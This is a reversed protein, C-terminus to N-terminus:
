IVVKGKIFSQFLGDVDVGTHRFSSILDEVGVIKGVNATYYEHLGSVFRKDGIASRLGDFLVIGQNYVLNAYEYESMFTSLDRDMATNTEGFLQSYISIYSRIAKKATTLVGERTFGYDNNEFFLVCSYEALGEDVWAHNRQDSGVGEYWWEHATEHVIAYNMTEESLLNSVMMLGAYEMGAYPFDTQVLSLSDYMCEGFTDTFYSFCKSFLDFHERAKEDNTYYYSLTKGKVEASLVSLKEGLVFAFDRVYGEYRCTKKQGANKESLLTGSSAVTYSSPLTISVDYSACESYFPDGVNHYVCEQWGNDYVCLIPYFNALNVCNQGVGLRHNVKALRTTFSISVSTEKGNELEPISVVLLNEDTGGVTYEASVSTIETYGYDLKDYYASRYAPSIPQYIAEKRYANGYLQFCLEKLPEGTHNTMTFDLTGTFTQAEPDYTGVITYSTEDSKECASFFPLFCLALLPIYRKM